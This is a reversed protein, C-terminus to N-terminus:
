GRKLERYRGASTRITQGVKTWSDKATSNRVEPLRQLDGTVLFAPASLGDLLGHVFCLSVGKGDKIVPKSQPVNKKASSM